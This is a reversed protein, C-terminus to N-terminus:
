LEIKGITQYIDSTDCISFFTNIIDHYTSTRLDTVFEAKKSNNGKQNIKLVINRCIRIYNKLNETAFLEKSKTEILYYFLAFLILKDKHELSNEKYVLKEFLNIEDDFLAVRNELFANSFIEKFFIDIQDKHNNLPFNSFINLSNILFHINVKSLFIEEITKFDTFDFEKNDDLNDKYFLM